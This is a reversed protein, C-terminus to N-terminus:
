SLENSQRLEGVTPRCPPTSVAWLKSKRRPASDSSRAECDRQKPKAEGAVRVAPVSEPSERRPERSLRNPFGSFATKRDHLRTSHTVDSRSYKFITQASYTLSDSPSLPFLSAGSQFVFLNRSPVHDHHKHEINEERCEAGHDVCTELLSPTLKLESDDCEGILLARRDGCNSTPRYHQSLVILAQRGLVEVVQGSYTAAVYNRTSSGDEAAPLGQANDAECSKRAVNRTNRAQVFM